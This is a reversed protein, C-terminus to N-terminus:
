TGSLHGDAMLWLVVSYSRSAPESDAALVRESNDANHFEKLDIRTWSTWVSSFVHLCVDQTTM